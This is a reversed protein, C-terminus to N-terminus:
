QWGPVHPGTLNETEEENLRDTEKPPMEYGEWLVAQYLPSEEPKGPVISPEESEGGQLMGKLTLLNYDGRIDDPDNGHCGFCKEKLLPLVKLTFLRDGNAVVATQDEAIGVSCVVFCILFASLCFIRNPFTSSFFMFRADVEIRSIRPECYRPETVVWAEMKSEVETQLTGM